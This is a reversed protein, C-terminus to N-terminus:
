AAKFQQVIVGKGVRFSSTAKWRSLRNSRFPPIILSTTAIFLFFLPKYGKWTYRWGLVVSFLIDGRGKIATSCWAVLINGLPM